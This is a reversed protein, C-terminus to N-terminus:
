IISSHKNKTVELPPPIQKPQMPVLKAWEWMKNLGHRLPTIDKYGLLRESKDTLCVAEKVEPREEVHLFNKYGSIESFIKAAENITYPISSGLNIIEENVALCNYLPQMLDEVYTFCRKHKGDGFITLPINNLANYCFIGFLNRTPDFISQHPGYVNRPRVIVWKLDQYAGAIQISKESTSKSLGYEDVPYPEIEESFPPKGSYVAVSSTFILKINHNICANIVNATGVTNNQHIFTRIHNARGESAYAACHFVYHCPFIKLVENLHYSSIDIKAFNFRPNDPLNSAFGGSMNDIGLVEHDTNELLWHAFRSGIFGAAGTICIRSV